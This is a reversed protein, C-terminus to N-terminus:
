RFCNGTLFGSPSVRSPIERRPAGPSNRSKRRGNISSRPRLRLGNRGAEGAREPEFGPPVRPVPFSRRGALSLGCLCCGAFVAMTFTRTKIMRDEQARNQRGGAAITWENGLSIRERSNPGHDVRHLAGAAGQTRDVLGCVRRHLGFGDDPVLRGFGSVVPAAPNFVFAIARLGPRGFTNGNGSPRSFVVIAGLFVVVTLLLEYDLAVGWFVTAAALGRQLDM